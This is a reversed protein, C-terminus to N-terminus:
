GARSLAPETRQAERQGGTDGPLEASGELVVLRAGRQHMGRQLVATPRAASSFAARMREISLAANAAPVPPAKAGLRALGSESRRGSTYFGRYPGRSHPERFSMGRRPTANREPACRIRNLSDIASSCARARRRRISNKERMAARNTLDESRADEAAMLWRRRPGEHRQWM